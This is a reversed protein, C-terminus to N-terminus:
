RGFSPRVQPDREKPQGVVSVCQFGIFHLYFPATQLAVATTSHQGCIVAVAIGEEVTWKPIWWFDNGLDCHPPAGTM